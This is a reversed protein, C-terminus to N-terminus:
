FEESETCIHNIIEQSCKKILKCRADFTDINDHMGNYLSVKSIVISLLKISPATKICDCLEANSYFVKECVVCSIGNFNYDVHNFLYEAPPIQSLPCTLNFYGILFGDWKNYSISNINGVVKHNYYLKVDSNLVALRLTENDFFIKDHAICNAQAMWIKGHGSEELYVDGVNHKHIDM